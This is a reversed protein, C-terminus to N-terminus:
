RYRTWAAPRVALSPIEGVQIQKDLVLALNNIESKEFVVHTADCRLGVYYNGLSLGEAPTYVTRPHDALNVSAYPPLSSTIRIPECLPTYPPAFSKSPSALIAIEFATDLAVGSRNTVVGSLTLEGSGYVADPSYGFGSVTLDPLRPYAVVWLGADPSISGWLIPVTVPVLACNNPATAVDQATGETDVYGAEFSAPPNTFDYIRCGLDLLCAFVADSRGALANAQITGPLDGALVPTMPDSCDFVRAGGAQYSSVALYDDWSDCARVPTAAGTVFTSATTPQAPNSVDYLTVSGLDGVALIAPTVFDVAEVVTAPATALCVPSTPDTVDYLLAGEFRSAVAVLAGSVAIDDASATPVTAVLRPSAANAFDVVSFGPLDHCAFAYRGSVALSDGRYGLSVSGVAIPHHLSEINLVKLAGGDLFYAHNGEVAVAQPLQPLPLVQLATPSTPVWIDCSRVGGLLDGGTYLTSDGAALGTVEFGSGGMGGWGTLVVTPSTPDFIDVINLSGAQVYAYDGVIALSYADYKGPTQGVLVPTSPNSVDFVQLGKYISVTYAYDGKVAVQLPQAGPEVSGQVFPASPDQANVVAFRNGSGRGAYVYGNRVCPVFGADLSALRGVETPRAPNSIDLIRLGDRESTLYAYDGEIAVARTRHGTLTALLSPHPPDAVHVIFLSTGSAVYAYGDKAAVAVCQAPLTCMGVHKTNGQSDTHLIHLQDEVCAYGYSGDAAVRRAKAGVHAIVEANRADYAPALHPAFLACVMLSFIGRNRVANTHPDTSM